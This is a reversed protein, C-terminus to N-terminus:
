PEERPLRKIREYALLAERRGQALDIIPLPYDKGLTVGGRKLVGEPAKWPQHIWRNELSALEPIWRRVYGGNADYREGQRVPNFIRFYPAADVGCGSVWQWGMTNNALDADVLTEWFWRAGRQWPVRLHKTLFSAVVMRARNHMTGRQWLERMGADILPIGTEGRCWAAFAEDHNSRWEFHLFRADLPREGTQPFHHLTYYAFERWALQRRFAASAAFMSERHLSQLLSRPTIEGFALHPSLMSTGTPYLSDRQEGYSQLRDDIFQDLKQAAANEGIEGPEVLGADWRHEPLLRLASIKAGPLNRPPPPIRPPPPLPEPVHDLRQSQNWFPTFVRYPTGQRTLLADPEFLLHGGYLNVTIGAAALDAFCRQDFRALHPEYRRNVFLRTAGTEGALKKLIEVTNGQQVILRSGHERLSRDLATLSHHLWCKSAAGRQWPNESEPDAIFLPVLQSAERCAATLAENDRLRLDHRFWLLAASM